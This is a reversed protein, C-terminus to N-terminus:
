KQQIILFRSVVVFFMFLVEFLIMLDSSADATSENNWECAFASADEGGEISFGSSFSVSFIFTNFCLTKLCTM